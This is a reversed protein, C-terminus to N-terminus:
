RLVGDSGDRAAGRLPAKRIANRKTDEEQLFGSKPKEITEPISRVSIHFNDWWACNGCRHTIM